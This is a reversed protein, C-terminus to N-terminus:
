KVDGIVIKDLVRFCEFFGDEEAEERSKKSEQTPGFVIGNHLSISFVWQRPNYMEISLYVGEKDFFQYLKKNDYYVLTSLSLVGVNPFMREKFKSLANPYLYEISYWDM